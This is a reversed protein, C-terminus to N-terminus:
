ATDIFTFIISLSTADTIRVDKITCKIWAIVRRLKKWDDENSKTVRTCLYSIATELDSRARKM